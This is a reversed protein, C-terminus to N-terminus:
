RIAAALSYREAADTLEIHAEPPTDVILRAIEPATPQDTGGRCPVTPPLDRHRALDHDIFGVSTEDDGVLINTPQIDGHHRGAAHLAHLADFARHTIARLRSGTDPANVAAHSVSPIPTCGAGGNAGVAFPVTSRM